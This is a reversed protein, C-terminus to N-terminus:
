QSAGLPATFWVLLYSRRNQVPVLFCVMKNLPCFQLHLSYVQVVFSSSVRVKSCTEELAAPIPFLCIERLPVQTLYLKSRVALM